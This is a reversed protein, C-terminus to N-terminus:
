PIVKKLFHFKSKKKPLPVDTKNDGESKTTAGEAQPKDKGPPDSVGKGPDTTSTGTKVPPTGSEPKADASKGSNLASDSVPEVSVTNGTTGPGPSSALVTGPSKEGLKVPGHRTASVDPSSGLTGAIKSLLDQKTKHTQDARARAMM